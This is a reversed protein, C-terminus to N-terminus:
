QQKANPDSSTVQLWGTAVDLNGDGDFDASAMTFPLHGGSFFKPAQMTGDGNGLLVAISHADNSDANSTVIDIKHDHNFDAAVLAKPNEGAAFEQRSRVTGDGNMLLVSVTGADQNATVLDSITDNNLDARVIALRGPATEADHEIFKTSRKSFFKLDSSSRVLGIFPPRVYSV